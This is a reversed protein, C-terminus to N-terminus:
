GQNKKGEQLEQLILSVAMDSIPQEEESSNEGLIIMQGVIFDNPFIGSLSRCIITANENYPLMKDKGDENIYAHLLHGYIDITLYEIYGGVLDQLVSLNNADIDKVYPLNVVPVILANV